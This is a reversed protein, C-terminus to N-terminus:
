VDCWHSPKGYSPNNIEDLYIMTSIVILQLLQLYFFRLHKQDAIAYYDNTM